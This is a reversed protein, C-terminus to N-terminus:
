TQQCNGVGDCKCTEGTSCSGKKNGVFYDCAVLGLMLALVVSFLPRVSSKM